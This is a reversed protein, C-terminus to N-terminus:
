ALFQAIVKLVKPHYVMGFHDVDTVEVNRHGAVEPLLCKEWEVIGDSRSYISLSSRAPNTQDRLSASTDVEEPLGDNLRTASISPPSDFPTGLTVVKDILDPHKNRLAYAYTGGLSWGVINIRKGDSAHIRRLQASLPSLWQDIEGVHGFNIGGAWDHVEHCLQGLKTRLYATAAGSAGFGPLVLVPLGEGSPLAEENSWAIASTYDFFNRLPDLSFLFPAPNVTFFGM